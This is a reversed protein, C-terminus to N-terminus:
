NAGAKNKKITPVMLGQETFSFTEGLFHYAISLKHGSSNRTKLLYMRRNCTVTVTEKIPAGFSQKLRIVDMDIDEDLHELWLVTQVLRQYAASGAMANLGIPNNGQKPHTVLIVSAGTLEIDRKIISLAKLEEIFLQGNECVALTIPDVVIIRTQRACQEAIWQIVHEIKPYLHQENTHICRGFDNLWAENKEVAALAQQPNSQVWREDFYKSNGDRIALARHAWYTRNEELTLIAISIGREHMDIANEFVFWSKGSGPTGGVVTIAGPLLARTQRSLQPHKWPIPVYTGDIVRSVREYVDAAVGQRKANRFIDHLQQIIQPNTRGNEQERKIYDAVDGKTPLNLPAIDITRISCAPTLLELQRQVGKIYEQGAIKGTKPNLKDNDPWLIATKGALLTWDCYETGNAGGLATTATIGLEHLAEVCKEGEVIIITDAAKVRTRNYIPRNTKERLGLAWGGEVQFTQTFEKDGDAKEIRLLYYEIQETDTYRYPHKRTCRGNLRKEYYHIVDELTHFPKFDRKEHPQANPKPKGQNVTEAIIEKLPRNQAHAIIDFYDGRAGCSFCKFSYKGDHEHIAGNPTTGEQHFPCFYKNRVQQSGADLLAQHLLERSTTYPTLDTSM